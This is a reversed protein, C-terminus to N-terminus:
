QLVGIREGIRRRLFAVAQELNDQARISFGECFDFEYGRVEILWAEPTKDCYRSAIALLTEPNMHHSDFDIHGAATLRREEFPTSGTKSADIFWVVDHEAIDISDELSLQYPDNIAVGSWGLREIRAAAAPGLGDDMRGPNGYGLVLVKPTKLDVARM